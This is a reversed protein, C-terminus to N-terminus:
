KGLKGKTVKNVWGSVAQTNGVFIGVVLGLVFTLWGPMGRRRKRM